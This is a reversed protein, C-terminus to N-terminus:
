LPPARGQSRGSRFAEDPGYVVQAVQEVGRLAESELEEARERQDVEDDLRYQSSRLM